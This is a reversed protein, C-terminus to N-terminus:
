KWDCAIRLKLSTSFHQFHLSEFGLRESESSILCEEYVIKNLHMGITWHLLGYNIKNRKIYCEEQNKAFLDEKGSSSNMLNPQREGDQIEQVFKIRKNGTRLSIEFRGCEGARRLFRRSFHSTISLGNIRLKYCVLTITAPQQCIM